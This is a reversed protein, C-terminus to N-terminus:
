SYVPTELAKKGNVPVDLLVGLMNAVSLGVRLGTYSGPGVVVTIESIDSLHIHAEKVVEDILPLLAQSRLASESSYKKYVAGDADLVVSAERIGSTDIHLIVRRTNM